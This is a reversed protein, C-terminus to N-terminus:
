LLQRNLSRSINFSNNLTRVLSLCVLAKVKGNFEKFKEEGVVKNGHILDNRLQTLKRIDVKSVPNTSKHDIELVNFMAAIKNNLSVTNKNNVIDQLFEIKKNQKTFTELDAEAIEKSINEIFIRALSKIRKYSSSTQFSFKNNANPKAITGESQLLMFLQELVNYLIIFRSEGSLSYSLILKDINREWWVLHQSVISYNSIQSFYPELDRDLTESYSSKRVATKGSFIKRNNISNKSPIVYRICEIYDCYYLKLLLLATKFRSLIDDVELPLDPIVILVPQHSIIADERKNHDKIRECYFRNAIKILCDGLRIQPYKSEDQWVGQADFTTRRIPAIKLAVDNLYFFSRSYTTNADPKIGYSLGEIEVAIYPNEDHRISYIKSQSLDIYEISKSEISSITFEAHWDGGNSLVGDLAHNLQPSAQNYLKLIIKEDRSTDITTKICLRLDNNTISELHFHMRM